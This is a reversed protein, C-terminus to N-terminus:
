EIQIIDIIGKKTGYYDRASSYLWGEPNDVFGAAVPNTHIYELKQIMNEDNLEIPHSHQQWFQFDKNNNNFKGQSYMMRLVWERRSEQVQNMDELAKRIHRSTFSKLDRIIGELPNKGKTSIIM